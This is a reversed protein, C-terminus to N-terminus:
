KKKVTLMLGLPDLMENLLTFYRDMKRKANSPHMKLTEFYQSKSEFVSEIHHDLDITFEYDNDNTIQKIKNAETTLHWKKSADKKKRYKLVM